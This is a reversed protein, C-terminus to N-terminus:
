RCWEYGGSGIVLSSSNPVEAAESLVPDIAEIIGNSGGLIVGVCRERIQAQTASDMASPDKEGAPSVQARRLFFYSPDDLQRFTNVPTLSASIDFSRRHQEKRRDLPLSPRQNLPAHLPLRTSSACSRSVSATMQQLTERRLRLNTPITSPRPHLLRRRSPTLLEIFNSISCRM